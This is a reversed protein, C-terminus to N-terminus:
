SATESVNFWEGIVSERPNYELVFRCARKLSRRYEEDGFDMTTLLTASLFAVVGDEDYEGSEILGTSVSLLLRSIDLGVEEISGGIATLDGNEDISVM